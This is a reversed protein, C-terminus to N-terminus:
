SREDCGDPEMNKLDKIISDVDQQIRPTMGQFPTKKTAKELDDVGKGLGMHEFKWNMRQNMMAQHYNMHKLVDDTSKLSKPDIGMNKLIIEINRVNSRVISDSAKKLSAIGTKRASRKAFQKLVFQTIINVAM